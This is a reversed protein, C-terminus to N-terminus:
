RISHSEFAAAGRESAYTIIEAGVFRKSGEPHRRYLWGGTNYLRVTGGTDPHITAQPADPDGWPMPEHIHGFIVYAPPPIDYGFDRNLDELELLSARYFQLFRQRVNKRDLFREDYRARQFRGMAKLAARRGLKWLTEQFIGKLRNRAKVQKFIEDDLRGIYKDLRDRKQIRVEEQLPRIIRETLPGAQGSGTSSLQSIPFNLALIQELRLDTDMGLDDAAIRLAWESLLTWFPEFYQGHTLLVSTEDTVLYLNPFAFFFTTQKDAGTGTISDFFHGGYKHADAAALEPITPLSFGATTSGARLDLVGPVSWQFERPILGRRIRDVINVEYEITDWLDFDHNGPLYIVQACIDDEKVWTFFKAAVRYAQEYSALSFDLVDGLMVLFENRQGGKGQEDEQRAVRKFEAYKPGRSLGGDTGMRVLSCMVDGFHTDSMIALRM